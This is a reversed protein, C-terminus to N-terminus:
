STKGLEFARQPLGLVWGLESPLFDAKASNCPDCAGVLNLPHSTGGRSIPRVHDITTSPAERCWLCLVDEALVADRLEPPVIHILRGDGTYPWRALDLIRPEGLEAGPPLFRAAARQLANHLGRAHNRKVKANIAELRARAAIVRKEHRLRAEHSSTAPDDRNM